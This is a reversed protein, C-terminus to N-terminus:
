SQAETILSDIVSELKTEFDSTNLKSNLNTELNTIDTISHIHGNKVNSNSDVFTDYLLKASVYQTDTASASFMSSQLSSIKHGLDEKGAIDWATLYTSTDISGDNKVFGNTNSKQLYNALSQHETLFGSDNTLDSTKSPITPFDTIQIKTHTHTTPTRADSLRSDNGQCFTNETTGFSGTTIKGNTTTILPKNATSGIAGTNTIDGHTHSTPARANTLRSDSTDVKGSLLTDMETKNYFNSIDFELGDLQEWSNNVRLYIDYLNNAISENNVILYLRNTKINSTPLSNVVEFLQLNSVANSILTTIESQTYTESKSYVNSAVAKEGLKTNINSNITKQTANASSGINGYASTDKVDGTTHTHSTPTRADSLRSDETTVFNSDNDLESTKSPIIPFDSIDSKTHKHTTDSKGDLANKVVKNQVPNKSSASLSSDVSLEAPIDSKLAYKGDSENKNYYNLGILEMFHNFLNSLTSPM